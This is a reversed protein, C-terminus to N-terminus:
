LAGHARPRAAPDTRMLPEAPGPLRQHRLEALRLPVPQAPDRREHVTPRREALQACFNTRDRPALAASGLVLEVSTDTGNRRPVTTDAAITAVRVRLAGSKSCNM